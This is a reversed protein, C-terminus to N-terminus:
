EPMALFGSTQAVGMGYIVALTAPVLCYRILKANSRKYQTSNVEAMVISKSGRHFGQHQSTHSAVLNEESIPLTRM